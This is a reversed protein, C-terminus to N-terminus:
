RVLMETRPLAALIVRHADVPPYIQPMLPALVSVQRTSYLPRHALATPAQSATEQRLMPAEPVTNVQHAITASVLRMYTMGTATPATPALM